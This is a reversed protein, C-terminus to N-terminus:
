MEFGQMVCEVAYGKELEKKWQKATMGNEFDGDYSEWRRARGNVTIRYKFSYYGDEVEIDKVEVEIVTKM